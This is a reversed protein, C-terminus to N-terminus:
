TQKAGCSGCFNANAPIKAGCSICYKTPLEPPTVPPPAPPPVPAGCSPCFKHHPQLQTGCSACALGSVTPPQVRFESPAGDNYLLGMSRFMFVGLLPQIIASIIWGVLPIAGLGAIVIGIVVVIAIWGLYKGWGIGRIIGFIEGFAFAKGFKGTKIMHAVGVSLIILLLIVLIVGVVLLVAGMGGLMLGPGIAQRQVSYIGSFTSIGGLIILITPVLLYIFSAIVVKAGEVFLEGYKDLKPPVGAGPSEKLVRAEYGVVVWNVIPIIDLVILIILRTAESFMKKTYDFSNSLNEGLDM